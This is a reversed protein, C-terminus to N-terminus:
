GEGVRLTVVQSGEASVGASDTVVVRVTAQQGDLALLDENTSVIGPDFGAVLGSLLGGEDPAICGLPGGDYFTGENAGGRGISIEVDAGYTAGSGDIGALLGETRVSVPVGFGGQPAVLM